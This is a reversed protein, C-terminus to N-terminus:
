EKPKIEHRFRRLLKDSNTIDKQLICEYEQAPNRYRVLYEREKKNRTRREKLLKVIKKEEGEDLPSIELPSKNRLPFLEKDSSSYLKILSVPFAPHNKMLEDTVESQMSNPGHLAKIMFLGAFSDKLKKPVKINKFNPTSVLALDGIKFDSPKNSKDWREKAYKFSHQMCRNEHHRANDLMLKLSSAKPHIDVLDKKLTDYPLRPNWCKELMVPTNGTSSHISTKYALELAPILTCWYHTFGDSDKFELVYAFFRRTMDELTQIIKRVNHLNKWLASTFKADRDSIINQFLGTHCIVKNWIMIATDMATDDKHCPLFMPTKRYRNVLVLCSNYSRGGGPPLATVWDMHVLEWASKPEKFQNMMGLKKGTARKQKRSDTVHKSTNQFM